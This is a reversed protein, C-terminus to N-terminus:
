QQQQWINKGNFNQILDICLTRYGMRVNDQFVAIRIQRRDFMATTTPLKECDFFEELKATKTYYSISFRTKKVTMKKLIEDLM